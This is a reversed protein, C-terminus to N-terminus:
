RSFGDLAWTAVPEAVGKVESAAMARLQFRPDLAARVEATVLVDCDHQRTLSEVRAALNVVAGIVTYEMLQPSGIVGAVVTGSHIGIGVALEPMGDARLRANYGALAERMALAAHAADNVQWPNPELAGFLALIGDGIFKSVHGRHATIARSMEAFYGNLIQVLKAPDLGESMRTFGRLDAFMVTVAKKESSASVGQAIISEVVQAPAFRQFAQQLAELREAGDRLRREFGRARRLSWLAAAVLALAAGLAGTLV